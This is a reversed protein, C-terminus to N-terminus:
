GTPPRDNPEPGDGECDSSFEKRFSSRLPNLNPVSPSPATYFPEPPASHDLFEDPPTSIPIMALEKARDVASPLHHMGSKGAVFSTILGALAAPIFPLGDNVSICVRNAYVHQIHEVMTMENYRAGAAMIEQMDLLAACVGDILTAKKGDRVLLNLGGMRQIEEALASPATPQASATSDPAGKQSNFKKLANRWFEKLEEDPLANVAAFFEGNKGTELAKLRCVLDYTEMYRRFKLARDAIISAITSVLLQIDHFNHAGLAVHGADCESSMSSLEAMGNLCGQSLLQGMALHQAITLQIDLPRYYQWQKAAYNIYDDCRQHLNSGMNNSLVTTKFPAYIGASMYDDLLTEVAPQLHDPAQAIMYRCEREISAPTVNGDNIIAHVLPSFWHASFLINYEYIPPAVYFDHAGYSTTPATHLQPVDPDPSESARDSIFERRMGGDSHNELPHEPSRPRKVSFHNRKKGDGEDDSSYRKGFRSTRLHLNIDVSSPATGSDPLPVDTDMHRGNANKLLSSTAAVTSAASFSAMSDQSTMRASAAMLASQVGSRISLNSPDRLVKRLDGILM